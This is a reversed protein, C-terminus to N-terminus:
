RRRLVAYALIGSGVLLAATPLLRSAVEPSLFMVSEIRSTLRTGKLWRDFLQQHPSAIEQRGKTHTGEFVVHDADDTFQAAYAQGDIRGWADLLRQYLDRIATEDASNAITEDHDPQITM